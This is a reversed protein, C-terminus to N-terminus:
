TLAAHFKGPQERGGPERDIRLIVSNETHSFRTIATVIRGACAPASTGIPAPGIRAKSRSRPVHEGGISDVSRSRSGGPCRPDSRDHCPASWRLARVMAQVPSACSRDRPPWRSVRRRRRRVIAGLSRDHRCSRSGPRSGLSPAPQPGTGEHSEPHVVLGGADGAGGGVPLLGRIRDRVHAVSAARDAAGALRSSAPSTSALSTGHLARPRSCPHLASGLATPSDTLSFGIALFLIDPSNRAGVLHSPSGSCCSAITAIVLM